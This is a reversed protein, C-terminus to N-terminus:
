RLKDLNSQLIQFNLTSISNLLTVSNCVQIYVPDELKTNTRSMKEMGFSVQDAMKPVAKMEQSGTCIISPPIQLFLCM